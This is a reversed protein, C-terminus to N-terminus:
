WDVAWGNKELFEACAQKLALNPRLDEQMLPARTLPDTQSRRLHELITSREYSQGTKTQFTRDYRILKEQFFTRLLLGFRPTVSVIVPDHM